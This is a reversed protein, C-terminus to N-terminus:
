GRALFEAASFVPISSSRFGKRNRTIIAQAQVEIAAYYQLGDEFDVFKDDNLALEFHSDLLTASKLFSRILRITRSASEKNRHALILYHLNVLTLTSVYAEYRGLEVDSLLAAAPSYFSERKLVWDLIINADLFLRNM